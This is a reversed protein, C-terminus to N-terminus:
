APIEARREHRGSLWGAVLGALPALLVVFGAFWVDGGGGALLTAAGGLGIMAVGVALDEVTRAVVLRLVGCGWTYAMPFLVGVVPAVAGVPVNFSVWSAAPVALAAATARISRPGFLQRSPAFAPVLPDLGAVWRLRQALRHALLAALASLAMAGLVLPLGVGTGLAAMSPLLGAGAAIVAVVVARRGDVMMAVAAGLLGAASLLPESDPM